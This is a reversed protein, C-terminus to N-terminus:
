LRHCSPGIFTNFIANDLNEFMSDFYSLVRMTLAELAQSLDYEKCLQISSANKVNSM